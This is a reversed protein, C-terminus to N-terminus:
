AVTAYVGQFTIIHNSETADLDVGTSHTLFVVHLSPMLGFITALSVPGFPYIRGTVGDDAQMRAVYRAISNKINANTITEASDTGDFVDPWTPTDDEPGIAIVEIVEDGVTTPSTGVEIHGTVMGDLYLNSTNDVSGSERGTLLNADEALSALTITYDVDTALSLKVDANHRYEHVAHAAISREYATPDLFEIRHGKHKMEWDRIADTRMIDHTSFPHKKFCDHCVALLRPKGTPKRRPLTSLDMTPM